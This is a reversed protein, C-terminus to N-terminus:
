ELEAPLNNDNLEPKSSFGIYKCLVLAAFLGSANHKAGMGSLFLMAIGGLSDAANDSGVM